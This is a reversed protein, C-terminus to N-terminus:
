LQFRFLDVLLVSLAAVLYVIFAIWLPFIFLCAVFRILCAVV